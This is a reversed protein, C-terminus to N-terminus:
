VVKSRSGGVGLNKAMLTFCTYQSRMVRHCYSAWIAKAMATLDNPHSRVAMGYDTQLTDILPDTLRGRGGIPKGDDLKTGKMDKKLTRLQTGVRKQINGM